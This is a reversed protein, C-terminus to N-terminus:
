KASMLLSVLSQEGGRKVAFDLNEQGISKPEKSIVTSMHPVPDNRFLSTGQLKGLAALPISTLVCKKCRGCNYPGGANNTCVRLYKLTIDESWSLLSEVKDPRSVDAGDHLIYTMDSSFMEDVMPTSGSSILRNYSSASPIFITRFKPTLCLAISALASGRDYNEWHSVVHNRINTHGFIANMGTDSAVKRIWEESSFVSSSTTVRNEIGRMSILHTLPTQTESAISLHKQLTYFSNVGGSFFTAGGSGSSPDKDRPETYIPIKAMLNPWWAHYIDRIRPLMIHLRNNIPPTVVLPENSRMAKILCAVVFGDPDTSVEEEDIGKFAYYLRFDPRDDRHRLIDAYVTVDGNIIRRVIKEIKM